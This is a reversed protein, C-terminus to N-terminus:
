LWGLIHDFLSKSPRYHNRSAEYQQRLETIRSEQEQILSGYLIIVVLKWNEGLVSNWKGRLCLLTVTSSWCGALLLCCARLVAFLFNDDLLESLVTRWCESCRCQEEVLLLLNTSIKNASERLLSYAKLHWWKKTSHSLGHWCTRLQYLLTCYGFRNENFTFSGTDM